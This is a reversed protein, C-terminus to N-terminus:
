SLGRQNTNTIWELVILGNTIVPAAADALIVIDTPTIYFSVQGAIAINSGFIAGYWNTGDTYSGQCKTFYSVSPLTNIGSDIGHQINAIPAPGTFTYIQRLNQQKRTTIYWAEGGIAPRNAPYIGITRNNVAQAIAIFSRDLEVSLQEPKEPFDWSTRLYPMTNVINSSM